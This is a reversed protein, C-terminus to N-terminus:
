ETLPILIEVQGFVVEGVTAIEVELLHRIAARVGFCDSRNVQWIEPEHEAADGIDLRVLAADNM